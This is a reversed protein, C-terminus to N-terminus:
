PPKEFQKLTDDDNEFELLSPLETRRSEARILGSMKKSPYWISINCTNGDRNDSSPTGRIHSIMVQTIQWFAFRCRYDGHGYSDLTRAM